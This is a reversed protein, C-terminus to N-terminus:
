VMLSNQSSSYLIAVVAKLNSLVDKYDGHSFESKIFLPNRSKSRHGEGTMQRFPPLSFESKIFLPNRRLRCWWPHLQWRPSFESKIFLPNRRRMSSTKSSRLKAGPWSLIRVQHIFSQSTNILKRWNPPRAATFIRLSNQSSSYLIAVNMIEHMKQSGLMSAEHSFESKIFLPNRRPILLSPVGRTGPSFESKIFLPNRGALRNLFYPEDRQPSFESKIFLPNRGRV